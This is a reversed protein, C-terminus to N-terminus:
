DIIQTEVVAVVFFRPDIWIWHDDVVDGNRLFDIANEVHVFAVQRETRLVLEVTDSKTSEFALLQMRHDRCNPTM